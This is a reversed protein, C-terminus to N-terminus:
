VLGKLYQGKRYIEGDSYVSGTFYGTAGEILYRYWTNGSAPYSVLGTKKRGITFAVKYMSCM